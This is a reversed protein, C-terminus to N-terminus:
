EYKGKFETQRRKEKKKEKRIEIWKTNKCKSPYMKRNERQQKM